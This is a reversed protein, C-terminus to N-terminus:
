GKYKIVPEGYPTFETQLERRQSQKVGDWVLTKLIKNLRMLQRTAVKTNTLALNCIRTLENNVYKQLRLFDHNSVLGQQRLGEAVTIANEVTIKM